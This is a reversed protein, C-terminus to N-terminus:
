SIALRMATAAAKLGFSEKSLRDIEERAARLATNIDGESHNSTLFFRLRASRM